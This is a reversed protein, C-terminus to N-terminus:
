SEIDPHNSKCLYSFKRIIIQKLNKPLIILFFLASTIIITIDSYASSFTHYAAGGILVILLSLLNYRRFGIIMYKRTDIIRYVLLVAYTIINSIIVGYLHLRPILIFNLTLGIVTILIFSPLIRSTKKACQYGLEYFLALAYVAIYVSNIFLYRSSEQYDPGVLWGYNLRLGFSFFIVLVCLLYVYNNFIGTFFTDRDDSNYQEIANQQWTQYFILSLIYLIGSFKALVAYIGNEQLGLFHRIFFVNNSSLIWWIMIAPLLPLSYRLLEGSINKDIHRRTIFSSFLRTKLQIFIITIIRASINAYFIGKIGTDFCILFFVSLVAIILANCIGAAMFIKTRSLGRVLQLTIDFYTQALGFMIILSLYRIDFLMGAAVGLAIVILSNTLVSRTIFTIIQSKTGHDKTELLFRFGGDGLQLGVIPGFCFVVTLCIDYYGFDAPDTIAFTYLPILLFTILKSGLNGIAYIGLDKVFKKSRSQAAKQQTM